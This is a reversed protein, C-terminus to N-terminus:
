IQFCLLPKRSLIDILDQLRVDSSVHVDHNFRAASLGPTRVTNIVARDLAILHLVALQLEKVGKRLRIHPLRFRQGIKKGPSLLFILAFLIHQDKPVM